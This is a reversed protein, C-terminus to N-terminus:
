NYECFGTTHLPIGSHQSHAEPDEMAVLQGSSIIYVNSNFCIATVPSGIIGHITSRKM